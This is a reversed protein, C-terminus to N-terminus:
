QVLELLREGVVALAGAAAALWALGRDAWEPKFMMVVVVAALVGLLLWFSM